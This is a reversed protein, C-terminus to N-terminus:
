EDGNLTYAGGHNEVVINIAVFSDRGHSQAVTLHLSQNAGRPCREDM